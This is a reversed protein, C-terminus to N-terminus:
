SLFLPCTAPPIAQWFQKSQDHWELTCHGQSASCIWHIECSTNRDEIANAFFHRDHFAVSSLTKKTNYKMGKQLTV